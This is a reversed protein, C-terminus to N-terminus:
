IKDFLAQFLFFIGRMLKRIKAKKEDFIFTNAKEFIKPHVM